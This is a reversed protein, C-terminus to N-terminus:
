YKKQLLKIEGGVNTTFEMAAEIALYVREHPDMDESAMLSGLAIQSGSGVSFFDHNTEFVQFDSWVSYIHGGFMMMFIDETEVHGAENKAYGHEILGTILVPVIRNCMFHTPDEEWKKTFRPFKTAYRIIQM